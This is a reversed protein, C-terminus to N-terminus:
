QYIFRIEPSRKCSWQDETKKNKKTKKQKKKAATHRDLRLYNIGLLKHSLAILYKAHEKVLFQESQNIKQLATSTKFM